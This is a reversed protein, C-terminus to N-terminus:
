SKFIALWATSGLLMLMLTGVLLLLVESFIDPKMLEDRRMLVESPRQMLVESPREINSLAVLQEIVNEDTYPRHSDPLNSLKEGNNRPSNLAFVM